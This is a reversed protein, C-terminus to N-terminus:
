QWTIPGGDVSRQVKLGSYPVFSNTFVPSTTQFTVNTVGALLNNIVALQAPTPAGQGSSLWYWHEYGWLPYSGCEVNAVSYPVGEYALAFNTKIDQIAVTGIANPLTNVLVRIPSGGTQGGAPDPVPQGSSNTTYTALTGTFYINADTETRVASATNRGVFYVSDSTSTGGIYTSHFNPGASGELYAAQRQTLNTVTALGPALSALPSKIFAYPAVLTKVESFPSSSLGVAEPSTSSVVLVPINTAVGQANTEVNQYTIDQLGGVAGNLIFDIQVNPSSGPLSSLYAQFSRVTSSSTAGVTTVNQFQNTVQYWLVSSSANGGSVTVETLAQAQLKATSAVGALLLTAAIAKPAFTKM